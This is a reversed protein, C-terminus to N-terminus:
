GFGSLHAHYVISCVALGTVAVVTATRAPIIKRPPTKGEAEAQEKEIKQKASAKAGIAAAAPIAVCFVCM